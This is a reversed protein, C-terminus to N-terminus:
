VAERSPYREAVGRENDRRARDMRGWLESEDDRDEGRMADHVHWVWRQVARV